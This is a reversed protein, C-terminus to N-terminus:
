GITDASYGYVAPNKGGMPRVYSSLQGRHHIIDFFFFWMMNMRPITIFPKGHITLEVNENEWQSDSLSALATLLESAHAKYKAAADGPGKFGYELTEDCRAHELIVKLDKVHGLVHEVIEHASRNVPHPRYDMRDVPLAEILSVTANLENQFCATFFSLNSM